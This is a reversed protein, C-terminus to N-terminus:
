KQWGGPIVRPMVDIFRAPSGVKYKHENTKHLKEINEAWKIAKEAEEPDLDALMSQFNGFEKMLLYSEIFWYPAGIMQEDVRGDWVDGAPKAIRIEVPVRLKRSLLIVESKHLDGIPQIDVMGDSAKGFFGLYSGEDRNTTGSVLSRFGQEQLLAAWYYLMPTRLVSAMQGQTWANGGTEKVMSNYADTLYVVHYEVGAAECVEVAKEKAKIQSTVGQGIIPLILGVVKKIPSDPLKSAENFLNIVLASDIGGSVGVVVSDLKEEQFFENIKFLKKKLYQDPKFARAMSLDEYMELFNM